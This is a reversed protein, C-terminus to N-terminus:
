GTLLDRLTAREDDDSETVSIVMSTILSEDHHDVLRGILEVPGSPISDLRIKLPSLKSSVEKLKVGESVLSISIEADGLWNVEAMFHIAKSPVNHSKKYPANIRLVPEIEDLIIVNGGRRTTEETAKITKSRLLPKLALFNILKMELESRQASNHFSTFIASGKGYNLSILVPQNEVELLIRANSPVSKIEAWQGMDFEIDLSGVGLYFSLDQDMVIANYDGPAGSLEINSYHGTATVISNFNPYAHDSIYVVGGSKVFQPLDNNDIASGCNIFLVDPKNNGILSGSEYLSWEFGLGSLVSGIDDMSSATVAMKPQQKGM